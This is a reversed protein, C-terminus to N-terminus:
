NLSSLDILNKKVPFYPLTKLESQKYNQHADRRRAVEEVDDFVYVRSDGRKVNVAYVVWCWAGPVNRKYWLLNEIQHDEISQLDFSYLGGNAFKVECYWPHMFMAGMMDFIRSSSLYDGQADPIKYARGQSLLRISNGLITCAHAESKM